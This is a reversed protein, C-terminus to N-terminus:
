GSGNKGDGLLRAVLVYVFVVAGAVLLKHRGLWSRSEEGVARGGEVVAGVVASSGSPRRLGNMGPGCSGASNGNADPLVNGTAPDIKNEKIWKWNEKDLEEWEARFKAGGDGAKVNGKQVKGGDAKWSGGGTSNWWRSRNAAWKREMESAGVSGTTMEESTM